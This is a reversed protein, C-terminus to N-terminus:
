APLNELRARRIREQGGCASKVPDDRTRLAWPDADMEAIGSLEICALLRAAQPKPDQNSQSRPSDHRAKESRASCELPFLPQTFHFAIKNRAYRVFQTRRNRRHAEHGLFEIVILLHGAGLRLFVM